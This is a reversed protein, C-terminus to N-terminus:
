YYHSWVFGYCPSYSMETADRGRWNRSWAASKDRWSRTPWCFTKASTKSCSPSSPPASAPSSPKSSSPSPRPSAPIWAYRQVKNEEWCKSPCRWDRFLFYILPSLLSMRLPIWQKLYPARMTYGTSAAHSQCGKKMSHIWLNQTFKQNSLRYPLIGRM